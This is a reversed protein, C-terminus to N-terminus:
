TISGRRVADACHASTQIPSLTPLSTASEFVIARSIM